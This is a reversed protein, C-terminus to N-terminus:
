LLSERIKKLNILVKFKFQQLFYKQPKNFSNKPWRLVLLPIFTDSKEKVM